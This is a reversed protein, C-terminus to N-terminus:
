IHYSMTPKGFMDQFIHTRQCLVKLEEELATSLEHVDLPLRQSTSLQLVLESIFGVMAKHAEFTPDVFRHVYDFTDVSTRFVPTQRELTGDSNKFTSYM